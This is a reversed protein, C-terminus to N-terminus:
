AHDAERNLDERFVDLQQDLQLLGVELDDAAQVVDGILGEIRVLDHVEGGLLIERKTALNYTEFKPDYVAAIQVPLTWTERGVRDRDYTDLHGIPSLCRVMLRGGLSRLLLTFPQQRHTLRVTGMLADDPAQAEWDIRLCKFPLGKIGRFRELLGATLAQDVALGRKPGRLMEDRVPFASQLPETISDVDEHLRHSEHAINIQRDGQDPTGLDRHMLRLFRNLRALVRRVQLLEVTDRLHPYYVQLKDDGPVDGKLKTLRRETASNVRDIRGVRQELSSPMWSIGYHYVSSCYTHLDEGEQLLDTTVLVLPYGPMRFQRVLVQNIQGSMGGIPQQRRLFNGLTRPVGVLPMMRLDPANVDVILDFDCAAAALERYARFEGSAEDARQRDLLALYDRM